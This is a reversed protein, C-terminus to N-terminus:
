IFVIIASRALNNSSSALNFRPANVSLLHLCKTFSAISDIHGSLVYNQVDEAYDFSEEKIREIEEYELAPSYHNYPSKLINFLVKNSEFIVKDVSAVKLASITQVSSAM